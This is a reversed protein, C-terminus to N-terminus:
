HAIAESMALDVLLVCDYYIQWPVGSYFGVFSLVSQDAHLLLHRACRCLRPEKKMVWISRGTRTTWKVWTEWVQSLDEEGFLALKIFLAGDTTEM